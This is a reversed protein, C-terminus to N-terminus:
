KKAKFVADKIAYGLVDAALTGVANIDAYVEGSCVAYISDGDAMTGVPRICRSYAGRAMAAIKNMQACTFNGNTIICAITTNQKNGRFLNEGAKINFLEAASDIYNGNEDKAGAIQEGTGYDFIDGFANLVVVAGIKLDGVQVAYLGLGSKTSHSIGHIKGVAAGTGGGVIGSKPTNLMANECAAKGMAADPRIDARGVALDFICSQVVLPVYAFKTDFGIKREELWQMVGDAAALGFASGGSLVVANIPNDATLPSLLPTERSAPGGGSIDIGAMGSKECLIVTVGTMADYDQANGIKFGDIENINIEKM